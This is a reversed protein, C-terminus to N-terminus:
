DKESGPRPWLMRRALVRAEDPAVPTPAAGSTVRRVEYPRGFAGLLGVFERLGPLTQLPEGHVAEYLDALQSGRPFQALAVVCLRRPSQEMAEVFPIPERIDYLSHATLAVDGQETWETRGAAGFTSRSSTWSM